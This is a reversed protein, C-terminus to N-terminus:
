GMRRQNSIDDVSSEDLWVIYEMPLGGWEAQWIARLLENREAAEKPIKKRMLALQYLARSITALSIDIARSELLDLQIEDLYMAPQREILAFLYDMD